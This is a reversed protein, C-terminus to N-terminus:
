VSGGETLAAAIAHYAAIAEETMGWLTDAQRATGLGPVGSSARRDVTMYSRTSYWIGMCLVEDAYTYFLNISYTNAMDPLPQEPGVFNGHRDYIRFADGATYELAAGNRFEYRLSAGPSQEDPYFLACPANAPFLVRGGPVYTQPTPDYTGALLQAREGNALILYPKEPWPDVPTDPWVVAGNLRAESADAGNLRMAAVDRGGIRLGM